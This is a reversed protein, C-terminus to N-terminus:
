FIHSQVFNNQVVCRKTTQLSVTLHQELYLQMTSQLISNTHIIYKASKLESPWCVRNNDSRFSPFNWWPLKPPTYM